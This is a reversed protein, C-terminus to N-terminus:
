GRELLRGRIREYLRNGLIEKCRDRLAARLNRGWLGQGRSIRAFATLEVGRLMAIRGLRFCDTGLENPHPRSTAMSRYGAAKVQEVVQENYRGGPCSFHEVTRDVINELERKAGRVEVEMANGELDSLYAHSMSHCGIEFGLGALERVQSANMYGPRGVFGATVYFTADFGRDKLIPAAALLDTECGDDFTLAVGKQPGFQLAQSVNMGRWGNQQLWDMQREFDGSPLVYRVYGPESQAVTRGPVELEHYMVFITGNAAM